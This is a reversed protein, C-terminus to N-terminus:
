ASRGSSITRSTATSIAPREGGRGDQGGLRYQHRLGLPRGPRVSAAHHARREHLDHHGAHRDRGPVPRDGPALDRLQLRGHPDPPPALHDAAQARRLLPKGSADFGELVQASGLEPCRRAPPSNWASSAREVLQMAAAATIAKTMSAIWVVSDRTMPTNTSLDRKGFAGEYIVGKDNAAMAVIGPMAKTEVAQTFAADISRFDAM